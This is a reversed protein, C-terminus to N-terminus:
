TYTVGTQYDYLPAVVSFLMENALRLQGIKEVCNFCQNWLPYSIEGQKENKQYYQLGLVLVYCLKVNLAQDCWCKCSRLQSCFDILRLPIATILENKHLPLYIWISCIWNKSPCLQATIELWRPKSLKLVVSESKLEGTHSCYGTKEPRQQRQSYITVIASCVFFLSIVVSSSVQFKFSLFFCM